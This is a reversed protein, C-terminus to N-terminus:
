WSICFDIDLKEHCPVIWYCLISDQFYDTVAGGVFILIIDVEEAIAVDFAALIDVDNCGDALLSQVSCNKSISVWGTNNWKCAGNLKRQLMHETTKNM